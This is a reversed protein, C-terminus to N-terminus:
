PLNSYENYMKNITYIAIADCITLLVIIIGLAIDENM